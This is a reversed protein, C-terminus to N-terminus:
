VMCTSAVVPHCLAIHATGRLSEAPKFGRSLTALAHQLLIRPEPGSLPLLLARARVYELMTLDCVCSAISGSLHNYAVDVVTLATLRCLTPFLDGGFNNGSAVLERRSCSHLDGACNACTSSAQLWTPQPHPTTPPHRSQPTASAWSGHHLVRSLVSSDHSSM